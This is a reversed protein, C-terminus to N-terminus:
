RRYGQLHQKGLLFDTPAGQSVTSLREFVRKHALAVRLQVHTTVKRTVEWDAALLLETRM